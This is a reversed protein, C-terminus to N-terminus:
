GNKCCLGIYHKGNWGGLTGIGKSCQFWNKLEMDEPLREQYPKWSVEYARGTSDLWCPKKETRKGDKSILQEWCEKPNEPLAPRGLFEMLWRVTEVVTAPTSIVPEADANYPNTESTHVTQEQDNM